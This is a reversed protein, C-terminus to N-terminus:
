LEASAHLSSGARIQVWFVGQYGLVCELPQPVAAMGGRM